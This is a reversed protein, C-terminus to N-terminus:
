IHILMLSGYMIYFWLNEMWFIFHNWNFQMNYHGDLFSVTFYPVSAKYGVLTL